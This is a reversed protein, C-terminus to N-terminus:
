VSQDSAGGLMLRLCILPIITVWEVGHAASAMHVTRVTNLSNVLIFVVIVVFFL